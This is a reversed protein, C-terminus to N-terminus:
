KELTLRANEKMACREEEGASLGLLLRCDRTPVDHPVHVECVGAPSEHVHVGARFAITGSGSM